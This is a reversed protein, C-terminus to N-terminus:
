FLYEVIEPFEGSTDVKIQSATRCTRFRSFAEATTEPIEDGQHQRWWERAKHKFLGSTSEFGLWTNFLQLGSFYSLKLSDPKGAKRHISPLVSTVPLVKFTPDDRRIIDATSANAKIKTKFVFEYGCATDCCFRATTHNYAGCEPCLKVPVEGTRKGKKKPIQPDNIPGLRNTNGAFDLVICNRKGGMEIATKRHEIYALQDFSYSPHYVPRTGRGYKQVHLVVSTTPRLDVIADVEPHDFGTTLINNSVIARFRGAKFAEIRNDRSDDDMKSHVYTAAIGMRNLIETIKECNTIGAGFVIWSKRDRAIDCTEQLARETINQREISAHLERQSFDNQLIRVDSVDIVSQTQKPILPSLYYEDILRNFPQVGCIDFVLDTFLPKIENGDRGITTDTLRGQGMRFPTASLGVIRMYPNIQQLENIVTRYMSSENPGLLHAEDIFLLDRHGIERVSNKVSGIGGFVLPAYAEKRGLGASFIGVPATPWIRHLTKYNQEVLEKVHTLLLMRQDPFQRLAREMLLPPIVSKGTGTPLSCLPNGKGGNVFYDWIANVCETQYPRPQM